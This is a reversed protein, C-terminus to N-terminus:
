YARQVGTTPACPAEPTLVACAVWYERPVFKFRSRIFLKPHELGLQIFEGASITDMTGTRYGLAREIAEKKQALDENSYTKNYDGNHNYIDHVICRLIYNLASASWTM